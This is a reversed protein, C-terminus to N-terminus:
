PTNFVPLGNSGSHAFIAQSAVCYRVPRSSNGLLMWTRSSLCASEAGTSHTTIGGISDDSGDTSIRSLQAFICFKQIAELLTKTNEVIQVLRQRAGEDDSQTPSENIRELEETTKDLMVQFENKAEESGFSCFFNLISKITRLIEMLSSIMDRMESSSVKGKELKDKIQKVVELKKNVWDALRKIGASEDRQNKKVAEEVAALRRGVEGSLNRSEHLNILPSSIAALLAVPLAYKSWRLWRLRTRPRPKRDSM